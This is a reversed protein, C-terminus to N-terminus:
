DRPVMRGTEIQKKMGPIGWQSKNRKRKPKGHREKELRGIHARQKSEAKTKKAHCRVTLARQFEYEEARTYPKDPDRDAVPQTHDYDISGRVLREGCGCGCKGNQDLPKQAKEKKTLTIRKTM